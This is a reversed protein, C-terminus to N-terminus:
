NQSKAQINSNLALIFSFTTEVGPESTASLEGNHLEVISKALSLGLGYGKQEGTTRSSDARYFRDFIHPLKDAKIGPGSNTIEFKARGEYKSLKIQVQSDKPSYQLANDILVKILESIATENGDVVLNNKSILDIRNSPQKQDKIINRTIKNL